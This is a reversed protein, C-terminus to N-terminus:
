ESTKFIQESLCIKTLYEKCLTALGGGFLDNQPSTKNKKKEDM